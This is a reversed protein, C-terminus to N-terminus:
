TPARGSSHRRSTTEDSRDGAHVRCRASPSARRQSLRGRAAPNSAISSSLYRHACTNRHTKCCQPVISFRLQAWTTSIGFTSTAV